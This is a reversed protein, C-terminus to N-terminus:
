KAAALVDADKRALVADLVAYEAEEIAAQAFDIADYADAEAWEADREAVDADHEAKKADIRERIRKVHRDWDSQVQNWHAEAKDGAEEAKTSLQDARADAKTRAEDVMAKLEDAGQAASARIRQDANEIQEKLKSFDASAAMVVEKGQADCVRRGRHGRVASRGGVRARSSSTTFAPLEAEFSWTRRGRVLLVPARVRSPAFGLPTVFPESKALDASRVREEQVFRFQLSVSGSHRIGPPM